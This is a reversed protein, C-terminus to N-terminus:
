ASTGFHWHQFRSIQQYGMKKYISNSTPNTLDTFLVCHNKGSQLIEQSLAWTIASGYGQNRHKLPTYVPGIRNGNQTEGSIGAWSVIEGSIQWLRQLGQQFRPKVWEIFTEETMKEKSLAEHLFERSFQEIIPWHQPEAPIMEGQTIPKASLTTLQFLGQDMVLEFQPVHIKAFGSSLEAPGTVGPLSKNKNHLFVSLAQLKLPSWGTSLVLARNPTQLAFGETGDQLLLINAASEATHGRLIGLIFCNEAERELLQTEALTRFPNFETAIHIECM